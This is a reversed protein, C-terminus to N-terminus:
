AAGGKLSAKLSEVDFGKAALAALIADREEIAKRTAEEAEAIRASAAPKEADQEEATRGPVPILEGELHKGSKPGIARLYALAQQGASIKTMNSARVGRLALPTGNAQGWYWAWTEGDIVAIGSKGAGYKKVHDHLAQPLEVVQAKADAVVPTAQATSEVVADKVDAVVPAPVAKAQKSM